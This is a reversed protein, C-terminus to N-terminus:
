IAVHQWFSMPGLVRALLALISRQEMNRIKRTRARRKPNQIRRASLAVGFLKMLTLLSMELMSLKALRSPLTWIKRAHALVPTVVILFSLRDVYVYNIFLGM